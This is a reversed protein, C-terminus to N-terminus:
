APSVAAGDDCLGEVAFGGGDGVKPATPKKTTRTQKPPREADGSLARRLKNLLVIGGRNGLADSVMGLRRLTGKNDAAGGPLLEAADHSPLIGLLLRLFTKRGRLAVVGKITDCGVVPRVLDLVEEIGSRQGEPLALAAEQSVLLSEMDFVVSAGVVEAMEGSLLEVERVSQPVGTRALEEVQKQPLLVLGDLPVPGGGGRREVGNEDRYVQSYWRYQYLGTPLDTWCPHGAALVARLARRPSLRRRRAEDDLHLCADPQPAPVLPSREPEAIVQRSTPSM